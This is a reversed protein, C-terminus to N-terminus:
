DDKMESGTPLEPTALEPAVDLVAGCAAQQWEALSLPAPAEVVFRVTGGESQVDIATPANLGLLAAAQSLIKLGVEVAKLDGQRIKPQLRKWLMELRSHHLARVQDAPEQLTDLLATRVMKLAAGPTVCLATGIEAFTSGNRRLELAKLVRETNAIRAPTL